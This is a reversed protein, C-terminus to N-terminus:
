LVRKSKLPLTAALGWWFLTPQQLYLCIPVHPIFKPDKRAMVTALREKPSVCVLACCQWLACSM